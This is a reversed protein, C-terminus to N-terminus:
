SKFTQAEAAVARYSPESKIFYTENWGSFAVWDMRRGALNSQYHLHGSVYTQWPHAGRNSLRSGM